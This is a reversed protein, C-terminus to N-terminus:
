LRGSSGRRFLRSSGTMAFTSWLSRPRERMMKVSRSLSSFTHCVFTMRITLPKPFSVGVAVVEGVITAIAIAVGVEAVVMAEAVAAMM